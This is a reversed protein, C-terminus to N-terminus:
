WACTLVVTTSVRAEARVAVPDAAAVSVTFAVHAVGKDDAFATVVALPKSRSSAEATVQAGAPLGRLEAALLATNTGTVTRLAQTPCTPGSGKPSTTSTIGVGNSKAFIWASQHLCVLWVLVGCVLGAAVPVAWSSTPRLERFLVWGVWACVVAIAVAGFGAGWVSVGIALLSVLASPWIWVSRRFDSQPLEPHSDQDPQTLAPPPPTGTSAASPPTQGAAM